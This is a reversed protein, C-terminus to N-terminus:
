ISIDSLDFTEHCIQYVERAVRRTTQETFHSESSYSMKNSREACQPIVPHIATDSLSNLHVIIASLNHDNKM